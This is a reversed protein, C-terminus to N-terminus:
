IMQCDSSQLGAYLQADTPQLACCFLLRLEPWASVQICDPWCSKQWIAPLLICLSCSSWSPMSCWGEALLAVQHDAVHTELSGCHEPGM